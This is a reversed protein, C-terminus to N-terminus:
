SNLTLVKVRAGAIRDAIRRSQNDTVIYETGADAIVQSLWGESFNADLAIFPRGIKLAGLMGAILKSGEAMLLGIPLERHSPPASLQAAIRNTV